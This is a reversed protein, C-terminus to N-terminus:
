SQVTAVHGYTYLTIDDADLYRKDDFPSLAIKILNKPLFRIYGLGENVVQPSHEARASEMDPVQSPGTDENLCAHIKIHRNLQSKTFFRKKCIHCVHLREGAHCQLHQM